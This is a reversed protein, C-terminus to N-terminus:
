EDYDSWEIDEDDDDENIYPFDWKPEERELEELYEAPYEWISRRGTNSM